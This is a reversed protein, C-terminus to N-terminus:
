DPRADSPRTSSREFASDWHAAVLLIAMERVRDTLGTRYRVAAGLDQLAAGM